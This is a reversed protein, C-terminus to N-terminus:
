RDLWRDSMSSARCGRRSHRRRSALRDWTRDEKDLGVWQQSGGLPQAEWHYGEDNVAGMGRGEESSADESVVVVM